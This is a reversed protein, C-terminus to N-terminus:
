HEKNLRAFALAIIGLFTDDSKKIHEIAASFVRLKAGKRSNGNRGIL